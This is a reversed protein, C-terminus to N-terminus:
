RAFGDPHAFYPPTTSRLTTSSLIVSKPVEPVGGFLPPTQPITSDMRVM